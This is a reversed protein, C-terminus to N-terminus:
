CIRELVVTKSLIDHANRRDKRFFALLSGGFTFLLVFLAYRLLYRWFSATKGDTQVAYLNQAKYGPTQAKFAFFLSTVVGYLLWFVAIVIQSKQFDEKGDLVLYTLIYLPPIALLFIDLLFAKLRAFVSAKVFKQKGNQVPKTASERRM